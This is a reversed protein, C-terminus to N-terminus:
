GGGGSSLPPPAGMKAQGVLRRWWPRAREAVLAELPEAFPFM